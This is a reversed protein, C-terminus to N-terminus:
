VKFDDAYGCSFSQVMQPMDNVFVLFRLPGLISGQQVGNTIKKVNSKLIKIKVCQKREILYSWLLKLLKKGVGFGQFQDILKNHCVKDFAAKFGIYLVFMQDSEAKDCNQYVENLYMPLQLLAWRKGRCGYHRNDLQREAKPYLHNILVREFVLLSNSHYQGIDAKDNEENIPSVELVKWQNPSCIENNCTKLILLLSTSLAPLNKLIIYM